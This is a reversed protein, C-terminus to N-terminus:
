PTDAPRYVLNFEQAGAQRAIDMVRVLTKYALDQDGRFRVRKRPMGALRQQLVARLQEIAVPEFNVFLQGQHDISIVLPEAKEAPRTTATPLTLRLAPNTFSSTLMFFILLQFVCDILPAMDLGVTVRKPRLFEM